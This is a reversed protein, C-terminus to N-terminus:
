DSSVEEVVNDEDGGEPEVVCRVPMHLLTLLALVNDQQDDPTAYVWWLDEVGVLMHRVFNSASGGEPVGILDYNVQALRNHVWAALDVAHVFDNYVQPWVPCGFVSAGVATVHEVEVDDEGQNGSAQMSMEITHAQLIPSTAQNSGLLVEDM